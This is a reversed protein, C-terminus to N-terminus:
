ATAARCTEMIQDAKHAEAVLVELAPIDADWEILAPVRGFHKLALAYLDWVADCVHTNHSSIPCPFCVAHPVWRWIALLPPDYQSGRTLIIALAPDARTPQSLAFVWSRRSPLSRRPRM